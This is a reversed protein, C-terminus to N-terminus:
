RTKQALTIAGRKDPNIETIPHNVLMRLDHLSIGPLNAELYTYAHRRMGDSQGEILVDLTGFAASSGIEKEEPTLEAARHALLIRPTADDRFDRADGHIMGGGVDIKKLDYQALYSARIREFAQQDLGPIEHRDTVMGKLINLSVIDAFHAYTRYGEGWLTRFVFINTEVPHPSLIPMVELGEIDNWTDFELDRIDFFDAFQEEDV